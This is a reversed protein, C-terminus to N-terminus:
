GAVFWIALATAAIALMAVWLWGTRSAPPRAGADSILERRSESAAIDEGDTRDAANWTPRASSEGDASRGALDAAAGNELGQSVASTPSNRLRAAEGAIAEYSWSDHQDVSSLRGVFDDIPAPLPVKGFHSEESLCPEDATAMYALLRALEQGARDGAAGAPDPQEGPPSNPGLWIEGDEDVLIQSPDLPPPWSNGQLREAIRQVCELAAECPLAGSEAILERLTVAGAPEGSVIPSRVEGSSATSVTRPAPSSM